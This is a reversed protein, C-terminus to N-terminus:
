LNITLLVFELQLGTLLQTDWPVLVSTLVSMKMLLMPPPASHVKLLNASSVFTPHTASVSPSQTAM